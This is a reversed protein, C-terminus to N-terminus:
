VKCLIDQEHLVVYQVGSPTEMGDGAWKFYLVRDGEKVRPAKLEGTEKDVKGPGTRVVSGAIPKEKASDPLLVGGATVEAAEEVQLLVRDGIPRLEPIDEATATTRPMIGILDDERILIYDTGGVQVETAGLGFKSYLVTDGPKTTFAHTLSGVRGDGVVEVDGSTPKRQASTPLLIGGTTAEEADATRILVLDGKPSVKTFQDPIELVAARVRLSRRSPAATRCPRFAFPGKM